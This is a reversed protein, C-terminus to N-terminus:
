YREGRGRRDRREERRRGMEEEAIREAQIM